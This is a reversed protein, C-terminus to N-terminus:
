VIFWNAGDSVVILSSYQTSLVKTAAGDIKQATPTTVAVITVNFATSNLKKFSYRRGAISVASPLNITLAAATSNCLIVSDTAAVNYPSTTITTIATSIPGAVSLVSNPTATGIGVKGTGNPQVVVDGNSASTIKKGNVDLDGGLKPATDQVVQLLAQVWVAAGAASSKCVFLKPPTTNIRLWLSGPYFHDDVDDGSGPDATEAWVSKPSWAVLLKLDNQIALGGAGTPEPTVIQLGRYDTLSSM